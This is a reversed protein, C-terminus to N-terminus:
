PRAAGVLDSRYISSVKVFDGTHSAHVMQGGGIYMGEHHVFSGFFVLDGPQLDEINVHPLSNWQALANHPLGPRGARAWAWMTLGSCDFGTEPSAGAWRYPVGVQSMAQEVAGAAGPSPPPPANVVRQIGGASGKKLRARTAAEAAAARRAQEAAVLNRLDTTTKALLVEVSATVQEVQKRTGAIQRNLDSQTKRKAELDAQVAAADERKRRLEDASQQDRGVALDVYGQRLAAGGAGTSGDLVSLVPDSSGGHAFTRLAWDGMQLRAASIEQKRQALKVEADRVQQDLNALDDVAQNYQETLQEARTTLRDVEDALQVAKKRKDTIADASAAGPMLVGAALAVLVLAALCRFRLLVSSALHRNCSSALAGAERVGM